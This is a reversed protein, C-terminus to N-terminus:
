PPTMDRRRQKVEADKQRGNEAVWADVGLVVCDLYREPDPGQPGSQGRGYHRTTLRACDDHYRALHERCDAETGLRQVCASAAQERVRATDRWREVWTVLAVGLVLAVGALSAIAGWNPPQNERYPM